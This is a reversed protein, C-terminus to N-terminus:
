VKPDQSRDVFKEIVWKRLSEWKRMRKRVEKMEKKEREKEDDMMKEDERRFFFNQKYCM